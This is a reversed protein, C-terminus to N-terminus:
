EPITSFYSQNLFWYENKDSNDIHTDMKFDAPLYGDNGVQNIWITKDMQNISGDANADGSLMGFYGSGMDKQGANYAQDAFSTFDFSYMGGSEVLPYASMIALHNRHWIVAFLQSVPTHPVFLM